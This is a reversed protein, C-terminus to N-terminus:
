YKRTTTTLRHSSENCAEVTTFAPPISALGVWLHLAFYESIDSASSKSAYTLRTRICKIRAFFPAPSLLTHRFSACACRHHLPDKVFGLIFYRFARCCFHSHNYKHKKQESLETESLKNKEVSTAPHLSDAKPGWYSELRRNSAGSPKLGGCCSSGKM